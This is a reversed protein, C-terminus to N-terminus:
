TGVSNTFTMLFSQILAWFGKSCSSGCQMHICAVNYLCPHEWNISWFLRKDAQCHSKMWLPRLEGVAAQTSLHTCRMATQHHWCAVSAPAVPPLSAPLSACEGPSSGAWWSATQHGSPAPGAPWGHPSPLEMCWWMQRTAAWSSLHPFRNKSSIVSIVCTHFNHLPIISGIIIKSEHWEWGNEMWYPFRNNTSQMLRKQRDIM